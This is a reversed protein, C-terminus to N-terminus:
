AASSVVQVPSPSNQNLVQRYMFEMRQCWRQASFFDQSRQKAAQGLAKVTQPNHHLSRFAAALEVHSESKFVLGCSQHQVVEPLGGADSVVPCIGLSIAELLARCLAERRSPMVFVDFAQMLNTADSRHGLMHIRGALRPDRALRSVAHHQVKGVLVFHMNELDKCELAARLFIDAGKVHRMRAVTGVVFATSPIGLSQRVLESSDVQNANNAYNYTTFCRNPSIGSAIMASRVADSECAHAIVKPNLYTLWDAPDMRNCKSAIGRFSIIKPSNQMGMTALVAHALPRGYCAHVLDPKEAIFAKRMQRAAVYSLKARSSDYFYSRNTPNSGLPDPRPSLVSVTVDPLSNLHDVLEPRAWNLMIKMAIRRGALPKGENRQSRLPTIQRGDLSHRFPEAWGCIRNLYVTTHLDLDNAGFCSSRTGGGAGM